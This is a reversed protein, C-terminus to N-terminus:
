RLGFLGLIDLSDGGGNIPDLISGNIKGDNLVSTTMTEYEFSVSLKSLESSSGSSLDISSINSPFAKFLRVAYVPVAKYFKTGGSKTSGPIIQKFSYNPSNDGPQNAHSSMSREYKTIVIDVAYDDRYRTRLKPTRNAFEIGFVELFADRKGSYGYIWNTWVDFVGKIRSDADMLFSLNVESFVSGYAYKLNPTNNIRYDGTTIQVGPISAEDTYLRMLESTNSMDLGNVKSMERYLPSSPELEIRVDYLNNFSLGNKGVVSKFESYNSMQLETDNVRM